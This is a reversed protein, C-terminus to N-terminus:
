RCRTAEYAADVVVDETIDSYHVRVDWDGCDIETRFTPPGVVCGVDVFRRVFEDVKAKGHAADKEALHISVGRTTGEFIYTSPDVVEGSKVPAGKWEAAVRFTVAPLVEGGPVDYRCSWTANGFKECWMLPTPKACEFHAKALPQDIRCLAALPDKTPDGPCFPLSSPTRARPAVDAPAAAASGSAVAETAAEPPTEKCALALVVISIAIRM